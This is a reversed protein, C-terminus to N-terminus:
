AGTLRPLPHRACFRVLLKSSIATHSGGRRRCATAMAGGFDEDRYTWYNAPNTAFYETLEMWLHMKPKCRWDVGNSFKSEMVLYSSAFRSACRKMDAHNFKDHSLLDYSNNLEKAMSHVALEFEDNVDLLRESVDLAYPVLARVEAAKARLKPPKGPAQIMGSTLADLQSDVKYSKYFQKIDAWLKQVRQEHTPADFKHSIIKLFNGLFDAAVGHDAVHLWDPKIIHSRVFPISFFPSMGLGKGRLRMILQWHTLRDKRWAAQPSWEKWSNPTATCMWCIGSSENHQGFRFCDKLWKWDSKSEALVAKISLAQNSMKARSKDGQGWPSGDHRSQPHIGLACISFSWALIQMIDDYTKHKIIQRHDLGVVPIRIKANEGVFCPFSISILDLSQSRDWNYPVGDGWMSIALIQEVPTSMQASCFNLHAKVDEPTGQQAQLPDGHEGLAHIIEHPLLFSVLGQTEQQGRHDKLRIQAIYPEPWLSGKVLKRTLDRSCNGPQKGYAGARGLDGVHHAGALSADYALSQARSGSAGGSLFLDAINNRLRKEAPLGDPV